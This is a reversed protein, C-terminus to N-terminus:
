EEEISLLSSAHSGPIAGHYLSLVAHGRRHSKDLIGKFFLAKEGEKNDM